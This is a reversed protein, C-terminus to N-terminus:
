ADTTPYIVYGSIRDGQALTVPNTNTWISGDPLRFFLANSIHNYIATFVTNTAIASADRFSVKGFPIGGNAAFQAAFIPDITPNMNIFQYQGTGAAFGAAGCEVIFYTVAMRPTLRVNKVQVFGGAGLTFGGGVAQFTPTVTATSARFLSDVLNCNIANQTAWGQFTPLEEQIMENIDPKIMGLNTTTTTGM